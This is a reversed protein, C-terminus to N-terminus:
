AEAKVNLMLVRGRARSNMSLLEPRSGFVERLARLTIEFADQFKAAADARSTNPDGHVIKSRLRYLGRLQQELEHRQVANRGLLWALSTTIRTTTEGDDSGFLNEWAIVADLLADGVDRRESAAILTRSVAVDVSATRREEVLSAWEAWRRAQVATLKTPVLRAMDRQDRWSTTAGHGLPDFVATWAPIVTPPREATVGLLVGLQLSELRRRLVDFDRLDIPWDLMPADASPDFSGAKLRYPIETELVLDGGYRIVVQRGKSTTTSLKHDLSKPMLTEDFANFARVRGWPLDITPALVGSLGVRVPISVRRGAAAKQVIDMARLCGRAFRELNPVEETELRAFAWGNRLLVDLFTWLQLTGGSGTSRYVQGVRGSGEREDPFLSSLARDALVADNFADRNPHRYLSRSLSPHFPDPWQSRSPPILFLPYVDRAFRVLLQRHIGRVSPVECLGGLAMRVRNTWTEGTLQVVGLADLHLRWSWDDDDTRPLTEVFTLLEGIVSSRVDDLVRQGALVQELDESKLNLVYALFDTGLLEGALTWSPANETTTGVM